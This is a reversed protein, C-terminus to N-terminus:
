LSSFKEKILWNGRKKLCIIQFYFKEFKIWVTLLHSYKPVIYPTEDKKILSCKRRQTLLGNRHNLGIRITM